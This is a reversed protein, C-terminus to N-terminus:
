SITGRGNGSWTMDLCKLQTSQVDKCEFTLPMGWFMGFQQYMRPQLPANCHCCRWMTLMRALMCQPHFQSGCIGLSYCGKQKFPYMHFICLSGNFVWNQVMPWLINGKNTLAFLAIAFHFGMEFSELLSISNNDVQTLDNPCMDQIAVMIMFLLLLNTDEGVYPPRLSNVEDRLAHERLAHGLLWHLMKYHKSIM